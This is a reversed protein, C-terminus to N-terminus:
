FARAAKFQMLQDRRNRLDNIAQHQGSNTRQLKPGEDGMALFRQYQKLESLKALTSNIKEQRRLLTVIRLHRESARKALRM